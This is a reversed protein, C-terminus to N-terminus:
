RPWGFFFVVLGCINVYVRGFLSDCDLFDRHWNEPIVFLNLM